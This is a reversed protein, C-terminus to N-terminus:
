AAAQSQLQLADVVDTTQGTMIDLLLCQNAAQHQTQNCLNLRGSGASDSNLGFPLARQLLKCAGTVQVTAIRPGHQMQWLELTRRRPAYLILHLSASPQQQAHQKDTASPPERESRRRKGTHGQDPLALDAVSQETQAMQAQPKCMLWAFQADRYSKWMRIVTVGVIDILLVRGFSDSAVALPGRCDCPYKM